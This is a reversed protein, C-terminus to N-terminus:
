LEEVHEKIWTARAIISELQESDMKNLLQYMMGIRPNREFKDRHRHYFDWYLSNFPCADSGTKEDKKYKCDQCYNSMKHMYNASAVYPKSGVIGGDAYQSMGRTNTIEVWEIADIYVGLYWADVEDPNAGLLLAFNGIVMLRQIHHAYAFDLSQGIAYKLCNMKTNGTWFWTPLKAKHNLFNLQAFEPMNCWYMGRMFERWGLIQRVFGEVQNLGIKGNGAQWGEIAAHVVEKPSLLKVNMAFSLRSHFVFPYRSDMADEFTGFHPLCEDVFFQLCELAQARTVPHFFQEPNCHGMTKLDSKRILALVEELEQGYDFKPITPISFDKPLKKRNEADYNWQGGSPEDEEMLVNFKKRMARYFNEMLFTKKGKFFIGLEARTTYFHDSDFVENEIVLANCFATLQQDLRFEDPLMYEFKEISLKEVFHHLNGDLNQTNEPHDLELYVVQHGADGLHRAFARMALFFAAVKQVHHVVYDTEQRMEMLVYTFNANVEEFWRHQHNLQDGLILRLTRM